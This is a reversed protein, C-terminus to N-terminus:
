KRLYVKDLTQTYNDLKDALAVRAFHHGWHPHLEPLLVAPLVLPSGAPLSQSPPQWHELSRMLSVKPRLFMRQHLQRRWSHAKPLKQSGPTHPPEKSSPSTTSRTPQRAQQIYDQSLKAMNLLCAQGQNAIHSNSVSDLRASYIIIRVIKMKTSMNAPFTYVPKHVLGLMKFDQTSVMLLTSSFLEKTVQLITTAQAIQPSM